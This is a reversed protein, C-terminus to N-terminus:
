KTERADTRALMSLALGSMDSAGCGSYIIILLIGLGSFCREFAGFIEKLADDPQELPLFVQDVEWKNDGAIVRALRHLKETDATTANEFALLLVHVKSYLNSEIKQRPGLTTTWQSSPPSIAAM